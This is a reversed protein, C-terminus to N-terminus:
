VENRSLTSGQHGNTDSERFAVGLAAMESRYQRRGLEGRIYRQRLTRKRNEPYNESKKAEDEQVPPAQPEEEVLGLKVRRDVTTGEQAPLDEGARFATLTRAMPYFRVRITTQLAHRVHSVLVMRENDPDFWPVADVTELRRLDLVVNQNGDASFLVAVDRGSQDTPYSLLHFDREIRYLIDTPGVAAPLHMTKHHVLEGENDFICWRAETETGGHAGLLAGVRGANNIAVHCSITECAMASGLLTRMPYRAEASYTQKQLDYLALKLTVESGTEEILLSAAWHLNASVEVKCQSPTQLTFVDEMDRSGVAYRRLKVHHVPSDDPGEVHREEFLVSAGDAAWVAKVQGRVRLTDLRYCDPDYLHVQSTAPSFALFHGSDSVHFRLGGADANADLGLVQALSQSWVVRGERVLTLLPEAEPRVSTIMQVKGCPSSAVAVTQPHALTFLLGDPLEEIQQYTQPRPVEDVSAVEAVSDLRVGGRLLVLSDAGYFVTGFVNLDRTDHGAPRTVIGLHNGYDVLSGVAVPVTSREMRGDGEARASPFLVVSSRASKLCPQGDYHGRRVNRMFASVTQPCEPGFLRAFMVGFETVIRVIPYDVGESRRAQHWPTRVRKLM